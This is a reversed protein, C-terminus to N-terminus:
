RTVRWVTIRYTESRKCISSDISFTIKQLVLDQFDATNDVTFTRLGRCSSSKVDIIVTKTKIDLSKVIGTLSLEDVAYLTNAFLVVFGIFLVFVILYRIKKINM